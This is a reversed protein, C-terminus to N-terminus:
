KIYRKSRLVGEFYAPDHSYQALLIRNCIIGVARDHTKDDRISNYFSTAAPLDAFVHNQPRWDTDNDMPQMYAVSYLKEQRTINSSGGKDADSATENNVDDTATENKADDIATENKVNDTTENKVDDTAENNADDLVTDMAGTASVRKSLTGKNLDYESEITDNNTGFIIEDVMKQFAKRWTLQKDDSDDNNDNNIENESDDSDDHDNNDDDINNNCEEVMNDYDDIITDRQDDDDIRVIKDSIDFKKEDDIEYKIMKLNDLNKILSSLSDSNIGELYLMELTNPLEIPNMHLIHLYKLPLNKILDVNDCDEYLEMCVVRLKPYNRLFDVDYFGPSGESYVSLIQLNHLILKNWNSDQYYGDTTIILAKLSTLKSIDRLLNTTIKVSQLELIVLRPFDEQSIDLVIKKAYGDDDTEGIIAIAIANKIFECNLMEPIITYHDANIINKMNRAMKKVIVHNVHDIGTIKPINKCRYEICKLNTYGSLDYEKKNTDIVIRTIKSKDISKSMLLTIPNM